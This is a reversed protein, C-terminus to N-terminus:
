KQNYEPHRSRYAADRKEWETYAKGMYFAWSPENPKKVPKDPPPSYRKPQVPEEHTIREAEEAEYAATRTKVPADDARYQM